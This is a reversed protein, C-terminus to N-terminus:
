TADRFTDKFEWFQTCNDDHFKMILFNDAFYVTVYFLLVIDEDKMDTDM